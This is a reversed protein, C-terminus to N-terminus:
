IVQPFDDWPTMTKDKEKASKLFKEYCQESFEIQTHRPKKSM